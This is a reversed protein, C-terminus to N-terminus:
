LRRNTKGAGEKNVLCHLLKMLLSESVSGVTKGGGTISSITNQRKILEKVDGIGHLSSCCIATEKDVSEEPKLHPAVAETSPFDKM